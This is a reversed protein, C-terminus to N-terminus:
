APHTAGGQSLTNLYSASQMEMLRSVTRQFEFAGIGEPYLTEPPAAASCILLTKAEYLADILTVFRKAEDRRDPTLIPINDIIVTPYQAALELYDAAGLAHACLDQFDLRAMSATAQPINLRRGDVTLTAPQIAAIGAMDHMLQDMQRQTHPGLPSHFVRFGQTRGLRYDTVADLQLLDLRSNLLRIFPIFRDRQLGDKYLDDPARNSTIVLVVGEDMLCQFLRGVIMADGIDTVQLEDLCLLWSKQAISKALQPIPDAAGGPSAQRWQHIQHHISQMFEHFHVRRKSGIATHHFFLDMLMSKGRGVQGFMYLGQKPAQDVADGPLWSFSSSRGGRGFRSFWGSIGQDPRYDNLALHLSQLKEAALGQAPDAKLRGDRVASRYATLPGDAM